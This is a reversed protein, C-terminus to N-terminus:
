DFESLYKQIQSKLIPIDTEIVEKIFDYRVTYYGHVLVHRMREIQRWPTEAHSDRFDSTLKYVAEGIIELLKVIGYYELSGERIEDIRSKSGDLLREIAEDIHLLRERDRIAERM